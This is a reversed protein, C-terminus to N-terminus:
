MQAYNYNCDEFHVVVAELSSIILPMYFFPETIPNLVQAILLDIKILQGVMEVIMLFVLLSIGYNVIILLNVANAM